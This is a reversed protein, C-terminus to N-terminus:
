AQLIRRRDDGAVESVGVRVVDLKVVEVEETRWWALSDESALAPVVRGMKM